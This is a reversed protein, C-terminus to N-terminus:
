EEDDSDEETASELAEMFFDYVEMVDTDFLTFSKSKVGETEGKVFPDINMPNTSAADYATQIPIFNDLAISGASELLPCQGGSQGTYSMFGFLVEAQLSQVVNLVATKLQDWPTPAGGEWMSSSRDVLIM